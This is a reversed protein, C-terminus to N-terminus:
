GVIWIAVDSVNALVRDSVGQFIGKSIDKHRRGMVITGFGDKKVHHVIMQGPEVGSKSELHKVREPPVGAEKLIQEPASFHFHGDDDGQLHKDCWDKGWKEHFHEKPTIEESALLSCSHFLTIEVRPNDKIIFALHDVATLTPLSCDVPVLIKRTKIDGSAVWIPLGNNKKLIEASVSGVVMRELRSLDKKGIIIADYLGRQAEHIIDGVVSQQSFRVSAEIQEESFGCTLLKKNANAMHSKCAIFRKRTVNDVTSLLDKQDLWDKATQSTSHSVITLLHFKIEPQQHFLECLYALIKQCYRSQDVAVLIKREM